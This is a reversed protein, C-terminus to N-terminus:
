SIENILESWGKFYFYTWIINVLFFYGILSAEVSSALIGEKSLWAAVPYIALTHALIIIDGRFISFSQTTSTSKILYGANYLFALMAIVMYISTAAFLYWVEHGFTSSLLYFCFAFVVVNLVDM